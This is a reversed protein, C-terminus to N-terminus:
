RFKSALTKAEQILQSEMKRFSDDKDKKSIPSDSSWEILTDKKFYFYNKETKEISVKREAEGLEQSKAEEWRPTRQFTTQIVEVYILSGENFYFAKEEKGTSLSNLTLFKVSLEGDTYVVLEFKEGSEDQFRTSLFNATKTFVDIAMKTTEIEKILPDTFQSFGNPALWVLFFLSIFIKM